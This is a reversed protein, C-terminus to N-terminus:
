FYTYSIYIVIDSIKSENLDNTKLINNDCSLDLNSTSKIISVEKACIEEFNLINPLKLESNDNEDYSKQKNKKNTSIKKESYSRSIKLPSQSLIIEPTYLDEKMIPQSKNKFSSNIKPKLNEFSKKSNSRQM